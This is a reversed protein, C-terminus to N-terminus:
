TFTSHKPSKSYTQPNETLARSDDPDAGKEVARADARAKRVLERKDGSSGSTM